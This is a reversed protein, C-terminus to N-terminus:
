PISLEYDIGYLNVTINNDCSSGFDLTRVNKTQPKVLVKGSSVWNCDGSVMLSDSIQATFPNGKFASGTTSGTIKYEDDGFAPTSEGATIALQYSGSYFLKQNQNNRIKVDTFNITYTPRTNVIGNYQYSITGSLLAYANFFYDNFTITTVTGPTDYLGNYSAYIKGNRVVTSSTCNNNFNVELTKPSTAADFIITDCGFVSTSDTVTASVIGLSTNSAQHIIKFADYVLGTALAYDESSNTTTDEDRDSKECGVFILCISAFILLVKKM